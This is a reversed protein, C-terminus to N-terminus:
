TALCNIFLEYVIVIQNLYPPCNSKAGALVIFMADPENSLAMM